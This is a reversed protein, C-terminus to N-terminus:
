RFVEVAWESAVVEYGMRQQVESWWKKFQSPLLIRAEEAGPKNYPMPCGTLWLDNIANEAWAWGICYPLLVRRLQARTVAKPQTIENARVIMQAM